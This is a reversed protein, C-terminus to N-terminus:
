YDKRYFIWCALGLMVLMFSLGSWLPAYPNAPQQTKNLDIQENLTTDGSSALHTVVKYFEGPKPFVQYLPRILFRFSGALFGSSPYIANQLRNERLDYEVVRDMDYALFCRHNEGFGFAVVSGQGKLRRRQFKPPSSESDMTWFQGNRYLIGFYRGDPSSQLSNLGFRQELQFSQQSTLTNADVVVARGNGFAVVIHNAGLAVKATMSADFELELDLSGWLQYPSKPDVQSAARRYVNLQGRNYVVFEDRVYDFCVHEASRIDSSQDPGAPDFLLGAAPDAPNNRANRRNPRSSRNRNASSEEQSEEAAQNAPDFAQAVAEEYREPNLRHFTGKATVAVIGQQTDYIALTERPFIGISKFKMEDINAVLMKKRTASLFQFEFPSAMIRNNALDVIPRIFDKLGPFDGEERLSVLWSSAALAVGEEGEFKNTELSEWQNQQNDWRFIQHTVDCAILQNNAPLVAILSDNSIKTNFFGYLAGVSFCAVWFILTLIVSVIPSRWVLGVLSSVSFYIAFVIIYLPISLLMARDWIGLALGFWIWLGVFLYTACLAIFVCGGAFKSVYLGWRSIPKSLLLNLSGPEFTEPIMNATVIIAILLGISLVMKEFYYPLQVTMLQAFQPRTLPIPAPAKWKAYYLDLAVPQGVEIAPTLATGILIRNLRKVRIDSLKDIGEDLMTRAEENILRAPWDEPRYFNRNEIVQNLEVLLEEQLQFNSQFRLGSAAEGDGSNAQNEVMITVPQPSHPDSDASNNEGAPSAPKTPDAESAAKILRQQLDNSLQSWIRQVSPNIERRVVLQEALRPPDVNIERVLKWDLTERVHAPALFVLLVTIILLLVYLVRSAMAARFSDKIIALYPRM